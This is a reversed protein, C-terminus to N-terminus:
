CANVIMRTLKTSGGSSGVLKALFTRQTDFGSFTTNLITEIFNHKESADNRYEM